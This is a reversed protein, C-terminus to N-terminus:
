WGRGMAIGQGCRELFSEAKSCTVHRLKLDFTLDQLSYWSKWVLNQNFYNWSM